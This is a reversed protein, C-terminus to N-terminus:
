AKKARDKTKENACDGNPAAILPAVLKEGLFVRVGVVVFFYALLFRGYSFDASLSSTIRQWWGDEGTAALLKGTVWVNGKV